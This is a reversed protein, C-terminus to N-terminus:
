DRVVTVKEFIHDHASGHDIDMPTGVRNTPTWLSASKDLTNIALLGLDLLQSALINIPDAALNM